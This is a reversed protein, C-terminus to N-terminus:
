ILTAKIKQAAAPIIEGKVEVMIDGPQGTSRLIILGKGRFLKFRSDTFSGDHKPSGNGAAMLEAPGSITIELPISADPVLSGSDDLADVHIYILSQRDAEIEMREPFLRITSTEGSTRLIESEAVSGDMIGSATLEGPQYPLTFEATYKDKVTIEKEAILKGNLELRVLPYRSYVKVTMMENEHGNWNWNKLEGYWGWYSIQETKGAPVPTKVAIELMSEDWVVDRYYSQAKKNGLIDLDGCWAIYWPWPRLFTQERTTDDSFYNYGIGSEGIYDMGTWVFDGIVYPLQEVMEWNEWAHQPVSESGYMIRDPYKEHDSEYNLFQYNYGGVDLIEFAGASYDWEKGPNDWFGCVAQTIPRTNDVERIAAILKKGIVIGEPDAREQVENGFSWMVVSPHNRDRSVMAQIDKKHWDEFYNSYDNPRKPKVWHDFAEDIVLVGLEDCANLFEESPPNHSTRIANYGNEKMIRLRRYEADRFAAAGILGNDHHMCAGKMLVEKGNLLFGEDASYEITRIGFTTSYRDVIVDDRTITIEATYMSPNTIDWIQPQEITGEMVLVQSENAGATFQLPEPQSVSKDPAIIRVACVATIENDLRNNLAINLKVRAQQRTVEPTTVHVGWPEVSLPNLVSLKVKRYIGAGAFWRSNEGPNTTKVAIINEKGAASLYPTIDINFPSYGYVNDIAHKGNIWVESQSQIGDFHLMVLKGDTSRPLTFTKRYWATGDRLYGVDKGGPLNKFFPGSHLSDETGYDVISWDHPLDTPIWGADDFQPEHADSLDAIIYKWNLNFDEGRAFDSASRNCSFIFSTFIVLSIITSLRYDTAQM